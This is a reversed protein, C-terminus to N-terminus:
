FVFFEFFKLLFDLKQVTPQSPNSEFDEFIRWFGKLIKEPGDGLEGSGRFDRFDVETQSSRSQISDGIWDECNEFIAAELFGDFISKRSKQFRHARWKWKEKKKTTFHHFFVMLAFQCTPFRAGRLLGSPRGRARDLNQCWTPPWSQPDLGKARWMMGYYGDIGKM